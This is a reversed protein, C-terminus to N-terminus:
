KGLNVADGLTVAITLVKGARQLVFNAKAGAPLQRVLATLDSASNIVENDIKIIVDGVQIGAKGAPSNPMLKSIKAGVSFSSNTNSSLADTIYAGLMAHSAKGSKILEAAIRQANNAPIAFGVGISGAQGSTNGASAIAVNIGLVQGQDNLLAGGSNGPNIAADTQIVSLNIPVATSSSGGNFLQLGGGSGTGNEPAASNAVQITRNLASVIGATVTTDLGLPSGIAVVNDGVNIKNSNAFVAPTLSTIANVKVVALDNTPDTGVVMGSYVKGDVTRVEIVPTAVSGELTVVHTNTLIYGSKTLVVGSGSGSGNSGSVSITVVSPSAAKAVATVWNVHDSNNVIVTGNAAIFGQTAIGAGAGVLGGMAAGIVIGTIASSKSLRSNIKNFVGASAAPKAAYKAPEDFLFQANYHSNPLNNSL